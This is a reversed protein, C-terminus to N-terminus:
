ASLRATLMWRLVGRPEPGFRDFEVCLITGKGFQVSLGPVGLLYGALQSCLPNHSALWLNSEDKHTRIESWVESVRAEPALAASRLFEGNYELEGALIEASQVARVLPSSIILSARVGARAVTALTTQLKDCGEPTLRRDSDSQGPAADEAIGHRLVYLKM